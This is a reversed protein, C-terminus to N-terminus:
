PGSPFSMKPEHQGLIKLHNIALGFLQICTCLVCVQFGEGRKSGQLVRHQVNGLPEQQLVEQEEPHVRQCLIEPMHRWKGQTLNGPYPKGRVDCVLLLRDVLGFSSAVPCSNQNKTICISGLSWLRVWLKFRSEWATAYRHSHSVAGPRFGGGTHVAPHLRHHLGRATPVPGTQAEGPMRQEEDSVRRLVGHDRSTDPFLRFNGSVTKLKIQDDPWKVPM